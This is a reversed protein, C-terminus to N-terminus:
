RGITITDQGNHHTTVQNQRVTVGTTDIEVHNEPGLHIKIRSFYEGTGLDLEGNVSLGIFLYVSLHPVSSKIFFYKM